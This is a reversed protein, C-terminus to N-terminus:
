RRRPSVGRERGLAIEQRMMEYVRDAVARADAQAPQVKAAPEGSEETAKQAPIPAAGGRPVPLAFALAPQPPASAQHLAGGVRNPKERDGGARDLPQKRDQVDLVAAATRQAEAELADGGHPTWFRMKDSPVATQQGVHTMEHALLGLGARTDPAYRGAAFFVDPGITFAEADLARATDAAAAGHHLRALVPDFTLHPRLKRRLAAELGEGAGGRAILTRRLAAPSPREPAPPPAEARRQPVPEPRRPVLRITEGAPRAADELPPTEGLLRHLSAALGPMAQAIGRRAALRAEWPTSGPRRVAIREATQRAFRAALRGAGALVDATQVRMESM